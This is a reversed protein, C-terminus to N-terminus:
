RLANRQYEASVAKMRTSAQRSAGQDAAPGPTGADEGTCRHRALLGRYAGAGLDATELICGGQHRIVAAIAPARGPRALVLLPRRDQQWEGALTEDPGRPALHAHEVSRGLYFALSYRANTDVFLIEAYPRHFGARIEAALARGDQRSPLQALGGKLGVLLLVWLWGLWQWRRAAALGALSPALLLAIPVFLPLLYFPLRSRALFFVALPLLLWTRLFGAAPAPAAAGGRYRRWAALLGWPLTGLLLTPLYVLLGGYWEGHRHHANSAVRAVVEQRLFYDLLGPTQMVVLLYWSLGSAAFLLLGWPDFLPRLRLPTSRALGYALIALLPLLGPPGKTLFALGFGLWMLRLMGKAPPEGQLLGSGIFGAMALTEWLTLLCDTSVTNAAVFPLVATAYAAAALEPRAQGLRRAMWWVLLSTLLYALAYPARVAWESHGFLRLAAAIAWYTLPPKTYHPHEPHLRPHLWDGSDLMQLAVATYRGEDPDWLGRSGQFACALLLLALLPLLPRFHDM